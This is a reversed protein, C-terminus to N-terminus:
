TLTLEPDDSYYVQYPKYGTTSHRTSNYGELVKPLLDVWTKTHYIDLWHFLRRKLTKNFSEVAGQSTPRYPLSQVHRLGPYRQILRQVAEQFEVGRDTQLVSPVAVTDFLSRLHSAVTASTYRKMPFAWAHKSYLDVVTLIYRYGDNWFALHAPMYTTDVQWRQNVHTVIIPKVVRRRRVPLHLQYSEQSLLFKQVRRRSIGAYREAVTEYFRDRSNVSTSPDRYLQTLVEDVRDTPVLLRGKYYLRQHQLTLLRVRKLFRSLRGPTYDPVTSYTLYRVAATYSQPTWSIHNMQKFHPFVLRPLTLTVQLQHSLQRLPVPLTHCGYM